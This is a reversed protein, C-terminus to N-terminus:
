CHMLRLSSYKLHEVYVWYFDLNVVEWTILFSFFLPIFYFQKGEMFYFQKGEM